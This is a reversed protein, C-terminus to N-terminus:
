SGNGNGRYDPWQDAGETDPENMQEPNMMRFEEFERIRKVLADKHDADICCQLYYQLTRIAHVDKARLMFVPEQIPIFERSNANALQGDIIDYKPDQTKSESVKTEEMQNAGLAACSYFLM